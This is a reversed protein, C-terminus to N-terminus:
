FLTEEKKRSNEGKGLKKKNNNNENSGDKGNRSQDICGLV